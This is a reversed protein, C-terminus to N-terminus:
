NQRNLPRSPQGATQFGDTDQQKRAEVACHGTLSPTGHLSAAAEYAKPVMDAPHQEPVQPVAPAAM